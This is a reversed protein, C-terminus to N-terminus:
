HTSTPSPTMSPSPTHTASLGFPLPYGPGANGFGDTGFGCSTPFTSTQTIPFLDAYCHVAQSHSKTWANSQQYSLGILLLALLKPLVTLSLLWGQYYFWKSWTTSKTEVSAVGGKLYRNFSGSLLVQMILSIVVLWFAAQVLTPPASGGNLSSSSFQIIMLPLVTLLAAWLCLYQKMTTITITPLNVGPIGFMAKVNDSKKMLDDDVFSSLLVTVHTMAFAYILAYLDTVGWTAIVLTLVLPSFFAENISRWLNSKPILYTSSKLSMYYATYCLIPIVLSLGGWLAPKMTFAINSDFAEATLSSWQIPIYGSSVDSSMHISILSILFALSLGVVALSTLLAPLMGVLPVSDKEPGTSLTSIADALRLNAEEARAAAMEENMKTLRSM